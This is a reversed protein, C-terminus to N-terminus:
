QQQQQQQQQPQQQQQQINKPAKVSSVLFYTLFAHIM